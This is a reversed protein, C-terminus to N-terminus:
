LKHFHWEPCAGMFAAIFRCTPQKTEQARASGAVSWRRGTQQVRLLDAYSEVRGAGGPVMGVM